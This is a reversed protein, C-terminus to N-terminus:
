AGIGLTRGCDLTRRGHDSWGRHALGAVRFLEEPELPKPLVDFGGSNLVEAWLREDAIESTVILRPPHECASLEDLLDKWSGDPLTAECLIVAVPTSRQLRLAEAINCATHLAWNSRRLIAQISRHDDDRPSVSLISIHHPSM